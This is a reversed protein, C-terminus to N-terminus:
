IQGVWEGVTGKYKKLYPSILVLNKRGFREKRYNNPNDDGFREDLVPIFHPEHRCYDQTFKFEQHVAEEKSTVVPLPEMDLLIERRYKGMYCSFHRDFSVSQGPWREFAMDIFSNNLIEISDQLFFFEDVDTKTLMAQIAGLEWYNDQLTILNARRALWELMDTPANPADNVVVYIPYKWYNGFDAELRIYRAQYSCIVIARNMANRVIPINKQGRDHPYDTSSSCAVSQSMTNITPHSEITQRIGNYLAKEGTGYYM